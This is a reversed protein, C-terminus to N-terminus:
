LCRCASQKYVSILELGFARHRTHFFTVKVQRTPLVAHPYLRQAEVNSSMWKLEEVNDIFALWSGYIHDMPSLVSIFRQHIMCESVPGPNKNQRRVHFNFLLKNFQPRASILRSTNTRHRSRTRNRRWCRKERPAYRWGCAIRLRRRMWHQACVCVCLSFELGDSLVGSCYCVVWLLSDSAVGTWCLKSM